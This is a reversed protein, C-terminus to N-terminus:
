GIQSNIIEYARHPSIMEFDYGLSINLLNCIPKLMETCLNAHKVALSNHRPLPVSFLKLLTARYIWYFMAPVDYYDGKYRELYLVYLDREQAVSIMPLGIAHVVKYERAFRDLPIQVAGSELTSHFVKNEISGLRDFSIAVHSCDASTASKIARSGLSDSSTWLLRM